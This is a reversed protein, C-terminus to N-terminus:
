LNTLSALISLSKFEKDWTLKTFADAIRRLQMLVSESLNFTYLKEISSTAIYYLAYKTSEELIGISKPPEPPLEGNIAMAKLEFICKVLPNPIAEATVARLSQYLLKMMEKEDNNERTYYDAVEAFYAGYCAGIYDKRLSEFYNHIEAEGMVYATRGEYLQFTGFCFPLTNASFKSAPKRAGRAFASIKGREKTLLCVRRDYEGIPVQKLIIGTVCVSEQM